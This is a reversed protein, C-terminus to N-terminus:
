DTQRKIYDKVQKVTEFRELLPDDDELISSLKASDESNYIIEFNDFGFEHAGFLNENTVEIGYALFGRTTDKLEWEIAIEQEDTNKSVRGNETLALEPAYDMMENWRKKTFGYKGAAGTDKNYHDWDGVEMKEKADEPVLEEIPKQVDGNVEREYEEIDDIFQKVEPDDGYTKKFLKINDTLRQKADKLFRGVQRSEKSNMTKALKVVSNTPAGGFVYGVNHLVIKKQSKNLRKWPNKLQIMSEIMDATAPVMSAVDSMVGMIPSSVNRYDSRTEKSASYSINDIGPILGLVEKFPAMALDIAADGALELTKDEDDLAKGITKAALAATTFIGGRVVNIYAQSVGSAIATTLLTGAAAKYEGQEVQSVAESGKAILTNLRSRRDTFYRTFMNAAENKEIASKDLSSSATLALRTMQQVVTKMTKVKEADSMKALREKSYGEIDGNLFQETLGMTAVARVLQDVKQLAFFSNSIMKKRGASLRSLASNGLNKYEILFTKTPFFDMDDKIINDNIGDKDFKIDSNIESAIQLFQDIMTVDGMLNFAASKLYGYTKPGARDALNVLSVPQIMASGFNLGLVKIAHLSHGRAITRRIFGNERNHLPSGQKESSKSIVDKINNLFNVYKIEGLVSKMHNATKPNKMIKLVEIGTERFALDHNIQEIAQFFNGHDLNIARKSGTRHKMRGQDTMESSRLKSYFEKENTLFAGVFGKGKIDAITSGVKYSLSKEGKLEEIESEIKSEESVPLHAQPFYGGPREIGKHMFPVGEIMRAESGTTRKHLAASDKSYIKLSDVFFSQVFAADSEDLERDLVAMITDLSLENGKDDFFNSLNKRGDPDGVNAMMIMLDMKTLVGEGNGIDSRGAFEPVTVYQSVANTLREVGYDNTIKELRGAIFQNRHRKNNLSTQLPDGIFDHIVGGPKFGDLEFASNTLNNVASISTRFAVGAMQLLGPSKTEKRKSIKYRPDALLQEEIAKEVIEATVHEEQAKKSRDIKNKRKAKELILKGIETVAQYQAYTMDSANMRVDALRKPINPTFDGDKNLDKIFNNFSEQEKKSKKTKNKVKKLNYLSTFENMVDLYGTDRLLKQNSDSETSKWFKTNKKINNKAITAARRLEGNLATAEIQRYAEEFKTEAWAKIAKVKSRKEGAEFRKPAISGVTSRNILDEAKTRLAEVTPIKGAIKIIGRKLTSYSKGAIIHMQRLRNRTQNTHAKDHAAKRAAKLNQNVQNELEIDRAVSKTGDKNTRGKKRNKKIESRTPTEALVKLLDDATDVGVEVVVEEIHVGNEDFVTSSRNIKKKIEPTDFYLKKQEPSLSEPNIRLPKDKSKVTDVIKLDHEYRELEVREDKKIVDKIIRKSSKDFKKDVDARNAEAVQVRGDLELNNIEQVGAEDVVENPEFRVDLLDNETEIVDEELPTRNTVTDMVIEEELNLKKDVGLEKTLRERAAEAQELTDLFKEGESRVQKPTKGEPEMRIYDSFEPFESILDLAQTTKLLIPNNIEKSLRNLEGSKDIINRVLAQKEPNDAFDELDELTFWVDENFTAKNAVMEKFKSVEDPSSENMKMSKLIMSLKLLENQKNAVIGKKNAIDVGKQHQRKLRNYSLAGTSNIVGGTIGGVVGSHIASKWTEIDGMTNMFNDFAGETEDMKGLNVGVIQVLEQVTEEAGEAMAGRLMGGMVNLMAMQAPTKALHKVITAGTAFRKLLPNAKFLFAGGVMAVGGSIISVALAVNNKKDESLNLPQLEVNPTGRVQTLDDHASGDGVDGLSEITMNLAERTSEERPGMAQSLENYTDAGVQEFADIGLALGLGVPIASTAGAVAGVATGGVFPSLFGTTAGLTANVGMIGLVYEGNEWTGRVMDVGASLVETVLEGVDSDVGYTRAQKENILANYDEVDERDEDTWGRLRANNIIDNRDRRLNPIEFIRDKNYRYVEEFWSLKELDPKAMSGHETSQKVFEETAEGVRAPLRKSLEAEPELEERHRKYLDPDIDYYDANEINNAAEQPDTNSYKLFQDFSKDNDLM